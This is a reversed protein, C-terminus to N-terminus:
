KLCFSLPSHRIFSDLLTRRRQTAYAARRVASVLEDLTSVALNVLPNMKWNAWLLEVPNLEPAYPPLFVIRSNPRREVYERVRPSRHSNLRDWVVIVPGDIHRFLQRLFEVVRHTNINRDPHLRFYLRAAEGRKSCLAAIASVKQRHRTRHSLTPTKGRPAWTKRVLPAMLLGSEDIFVITAGIRAANKKGRALGESGM